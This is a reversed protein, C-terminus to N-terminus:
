QFSIKKYKKKDRSAIDLHSGKVSFSFALGYLSNSSAPDIRLVSKYKVIDERFMEEYMKGPRNHPVITNDFTDTNETLGTESLYFRKVSFNQDGERTDERRAIANDLYMAKRYYAHALNLFASNDYPNNIIDDEYRRIAENVGIQTKHNRTINYTYVRYNSNEADEEGSALLSANREQDVFDLDNINTEGTDVSKAHAIEEHMQKKGQDADSIGTELQAKEHISDNAEQLQGAEFPAKNSQVLKGMNSKQSLPHHQTEVQNQDRESGKADSKEALIM